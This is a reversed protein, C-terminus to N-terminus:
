KGLSSYWKVNGEMTHSPELKEVEKGVKNNEPNKFNNNYGNIERIGLSTSCRHMQKSATQMDKLFTQEYGKGM